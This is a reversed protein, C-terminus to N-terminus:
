LSQNLSWGARGESHWSSLNMRASKFGCSSKNCQLCIQTESNQQKHGTKKNWPLQEKLHWHEPLWNGMHFHMRRTCEYKWPVERIKSPLNVNEAGAEMIHRLMSMHVLYLPHVMKNWNKTNEVRKNGKRPPPDPNTQTTPPPCSHFTPYINPDWPIAFPLCVVSIHCKSFNLKTEGHSVWAIGITISFQSNKPNGMKLNHNVLLYVIYTCILICAFAGLIKKSGRLCMTCVNITQSQQWSIRIFSHMM